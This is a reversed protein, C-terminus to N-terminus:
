EEYYGSSDRHGYGYGYNYKAGYLPVRIDNMMISMNGLKKDQYLNNIFRIAHKDSYNQRVVYIM